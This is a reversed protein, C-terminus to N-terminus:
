EFVFERADLYCEKGTRQECDIVLNNAANAFNVALQNNEKTAQYGTAAGLGFLLVYILLNAKM